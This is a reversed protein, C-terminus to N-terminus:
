FCGLECNRIKIGLHNAADGIERYPVKLEEALKRARSCSIRSDKAEERLRQEILERGTELSQVERSQSIAPYSRRADLPDSICFFRVMIDHILENFGAESSKNFVTAPTKVRPEGPSLIYDAKGILRLASPKVQEPDDGYVFIVVDPSLVMAPSNGEILIAQCDRLRSIATSLLSPLEDEPSQIWIVDAAGAQRLRATDKGPMDIDANEESVSAAGETKTYKVAGWRVPIRKIIHEAAFTKGCGSHAGTVSILLQKM